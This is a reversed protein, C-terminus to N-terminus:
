SHLCCKVKRKLVDLARKKIHVQAPGKAKKLQEKYGLLENDLAKIKKDVLLNCFYSKIVDFVFIHLQPIVNLLAIESPVPQM